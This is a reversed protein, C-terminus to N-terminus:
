AGGGRPLWRAAVGATVADLVAVVAVLASIGAAVTASDGKQAAGICLAGAGPVAMLMEVAAVVAASVGILPTSDEVARVVALPVAHRTAISRLAGGRGIAALFGGASDIAGSGSRLGHVIAPALFALWAGVLGDAGLAFLLVAPVVAPLAGDIVGAVRLGCGALSPGAVLVRSAAMAGAVMGVLIPPALVGLTVLGGVLAEWAESVGAGALLAVVLLAVLLPSAALLRHVAINPNM